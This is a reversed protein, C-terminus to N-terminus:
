NPLPPGASPSTSRSALSGSGADTTRAQPRRTPRLPPATWAMPLRRHAAGASALRVPRQIPPTAPYGYAWLQVMGKPPIMIRVEPVTGPV